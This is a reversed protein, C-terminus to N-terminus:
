NFYFGNPGLGVPIEKQLTGTLSYVYIKGNVDFAPSDGIFIKNKYIAFGYMEGYISSSSLYSMIPTDSTATADINMVYASKGATYYIKNEYIDLNRVNQLLFPLRTVTKDALKVKVLESVVGSPNRAVYLFGDKIEMSNASDGIDIPTELANTTTNIVLVKTNSSPETIYLKGNDYLIKDATAKLPITTEVLNTTLNIVAVFDDTDGTTPNTYSYTNANTVYAKGNVVVAYRPIALGTEIKSVLKFTKRNVITIKKSENSIVYANDGNFFISQVYGGLGDASNVVGYIDQQVTNLDNSVFFVTGKTSNGENVVFFGNEYAGPFPVPTIEDDKSCSFFLAAAIITVVLKNIKM